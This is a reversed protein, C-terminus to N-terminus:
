GSINLLYMEIHWFDLFVNGYASNTVLMATIASLLLVVGSARESEFFELFLATLKTKM